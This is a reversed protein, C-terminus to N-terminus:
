LIGRKTNFCTNYEMADSTRVQGVHDKMALWNKFSMAVGSGRWKDYIARKEPDCLTEKAEQFHFLLFKILKLTISM